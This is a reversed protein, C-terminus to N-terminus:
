LTPSLVVGREPNSWKVSSVYMVINFTLSPPILYWKKLRRRSEVKSQVESGRMMSLSELWQCASGYLVRGYIPWSYKPLVFCKLNQM